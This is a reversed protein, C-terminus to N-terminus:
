LNIKYYLRRGNPYIGYIYAIKNQEADQFALEIDTESDIDIDNIKTIIFGERIGNQRLLGNKLNSVQLGSEIQLQWKQRNSIETFSAGLANIYRQKGLTINGLINRLQVNYTKSKGNRKILVDIRDGPRYKSIQELLQETSNVRVKNISLMIDGERIGASKASGDDSVATVYVGEIRDINKEKVLADDIERITVGMFARQVQGFEKIDTVVKKVINVPIAFSYGTYTGTRSQIATNIGILQGSANVLAGGSNGQNVAADTQIFSEIPMRSENIGISRAKASIIGATVTSTLNFPNGIALVWEGLKLEDSNGYPIIPLDDIDIKLLALDTTKDQGMLTAKFVRKDNLVVQINDSRQIVHNNTVIYGDESIIVGSGYGRVTRERNHNQSYGFFYDLLNTPTQEISYLTQIHVVAQVSQQAAKSLDIPQPSVPPSFGTFNFSPKPTYTNNARSKNNKLYRDYAFLGILCCVLFLVIFNFVKRM